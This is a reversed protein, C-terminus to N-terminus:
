ASWRSTSRSPTDSRLFHGKKGDRAFPATLGEDNKAMGSLFDLFSAQRALGCTATWKGTPWPSPRAEGTGEDPGPTACNLTQEGKTMVILVKYTGPTDEILSWAQM